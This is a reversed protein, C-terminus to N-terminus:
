PPNRGELERAKSRTGRESCQACAKAPVFSATRLVSRDDQQFHRCMRMQMRVDPQLSTDHRGGIAGRRAAIAGLLFAGGTVAPPRLCLGVRDLRRLIEVRALRPIGLRGFRQGAQVLRAFAVQVPPGLVLRRPAPLRRLGFRRGRRRGAVRFAAVVRPQLRAEGVDGLAQLARQGLDIRVFRHGVEVVPEIRDLLAEVLRQALHGLARVQVAELEDFGVHHLQGRVDLLGPAAEIADIGDVLLHLAERAPELVAIMPPEIRQLLQQLVIDRFPALAVLAGGAGQAAQLIHDVADAFGDLAMSAWFGTGSRDSESSPM